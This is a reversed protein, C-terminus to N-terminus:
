NVVEAEDVNDTPSDDVQEPMPTKGDLGGLNQTEQFKEIQLKLMMVPINAYPESSLPMNLGFAENAIKINDNITLSGVNSFKEVANSLEESGVIRAAKSRFEWNYIGFERQIILRNIEDDVMTREPAFIQQEAILQSSRASALNYSKADGTYLPALRFPRRINELATGQYTGFMQDEKRYETMNKFELKVNSKEDLGTIEPIAELVIIKNFNEKKKASSFISILDKYSEETLVGGSILVAMPPIGQNDMLDYNIFSAGSKGMVDPISGSWRPVSYASDGGFPLTMFMLETATNRTRTLIFKGTEYDMTRPDGFEKFYRVKRTTPIIQCFRKFYKDFTYPIVKGDRKINVTVKVPKDIEKDFSALRINMMPAHYMAFVKKNRSRIVEYCACGLTELDERKKVAIKTYSEDENISDFFDFLQQYERMAEPSTQADPDDGVYVIDYGFGEVNYKMADVCATLADSDEKMQYLKAFDYPPTVVQGDSQMQEFMNEQHTRSIFNRSILEPETDRKISPRRLQIQQTKPVQTAQKKM